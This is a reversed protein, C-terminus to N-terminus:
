MLVRRYVKAKLPYAYKYINFDKNFSLNLYQKHQKLVKKLKYKLVSCYRKYEAKNKTDRINRILIKIYDNLIYRYMEDNNKTKFFALQKEAAEVLDMKKPNWSSHTIGDSNEYYYYLPENVVSVNQFQFLLKYSTFRDEHWKGLPFRINDFLNKKYLRACSSEPDLLQDRFADEVRTVTINNNVDKILFKNVVLVQAMSIATNNENNAKMLLELYKPHVWDDSDIFTIWESDSNELAWEIGSNRAASLGGNKQHIVHIFDYKKAYDDCIEPAKDPSGDDVLILEFDKYTQNLISDVCRNLYQEVKYVPVVVSITPM